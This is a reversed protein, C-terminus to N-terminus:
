KPPLSGAFGVGREVWARLDADASVEASDLRLWGAMSRGRMVMEEAPTTKVLQESEAPDVRV